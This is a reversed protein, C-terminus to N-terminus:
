RGMATSRWDLGLISVVSQLSQNTSTVSSISLQSHRLRQSILENLTSFHEIESHKHESNASSSQMIKEQTLITLLM